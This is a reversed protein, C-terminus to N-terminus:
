YEVPTYIPLDLLDPNLLLKRLLKVSNAFYLGDAIREDITMGLELAERMECSGDELFFPMRKKEGVVVFISNTGWNTLHHYTANMKISGLNSVFVSSFYPDDKMLAQPYWGHYDLWKLSAMVARLMVRPLKNLIGMKDTTGDTQNKERVDHVIKKVKSYIQEVPSEDSNRNVKIMALAEEGHDTFKKKVVFSFLIDKRDYLKHGAYFRNMIPRLVIVKAMAACIVHFFTYKFSIDKTNKKELYTQVATLDLIENMVAENDARNPLLFPLFAHMTDIERVLYGDKRDGRKRKRDEM